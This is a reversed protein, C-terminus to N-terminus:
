DKEIRMRDTRFDTKQLAEAALKMAKSRHVASIDFRFIGDGQIANWENVTGIGRWALLATYEVAFKEANTAEITTATAGKQQIVVNFQEHPVEDADVYHDALSQEVFSALLADAEEQEAVAEVGTTGTQGVKGHHLVFEGVPEDWWAERYHSPRQADDATFYMRIISM